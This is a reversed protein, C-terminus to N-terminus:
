LLILEELDESEQTGSHGWSWVHVIDDHVEPSLTRRSVLIQGFAKGPYSALRKESPLSM